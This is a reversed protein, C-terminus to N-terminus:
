RKHVNTRTLVTKTKEKLANQAPSAEFVEFSDVKFFFFTFQRGGNSSRM